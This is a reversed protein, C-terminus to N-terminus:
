LNIALIRIMRMSFFRKKSIINIWQLRAFHTGEEGNKTRTIVMKPVASSPVM